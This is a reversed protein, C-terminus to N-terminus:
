RAGPGAESTSEVPPPEEDARIEAVQLVRVVLHVERGVAAAIGDELSQVESPAIVRTAELDLTIALPDQDRRIDLGLRRAGGTQGLERDVAAAVDHRLEGSSYASFTLWGIPLSVMLVLLALATFGRSFLRVRIAHEPEPRFGLLLFTTGAAASVAALNALFLLSAGGAMGRDLSAAGISVTALPPVLAVAIAVGPLSAAVQPRGLAYAGAVGSALAVGVDFLSPETRALVEPTSHTGPILLALVFAVVMAALSGRAVGSGALRLVRADGQTVSLGIAIVPSMLPAVLMAGIVVFGSNMMMGLTAIAAALATMTYFDVGPRASRRIERYVEVKESETLTPLRRVAASWRRRLESRPGAPRFILVPLEARRAVQESLNGLALRHIIGGSPSGVILLDYDDVSADQLIGQRPSPASAVRVKVRSPEPLRSVEEQLAAAPDVREREGDRIALLTVEGDAGDAVDWAFRLIDPDLRHPPAAFLTRAPKGMGDRAVVIAVDCV